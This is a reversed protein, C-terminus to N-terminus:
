LVSLVAVGRRGCESMEDYIGYNAHAGGRERERTRENVSRVYMYPMCLFYCASIIFVCMCVYQHHHHHDFRVLVVSVYVYVLWSVSLYKMNPTYTHERRKNEKIKTHTPSLM